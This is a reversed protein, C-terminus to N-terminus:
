GGVPMMLGNVHAARDSVLFEVADAIADPTALTGAARGGLLKEREEAPLMQFREHVRAGPETLIFGPVIVNVTIGAAAVDLALQRSFAEIAGKAACYALRAGVTGLAGPMGRTLTSSFNVVRGRGARKMHPLAARCCLFTATLNSDIVAGWLEDTHEEIERAGVHGSGGACNVLIDIRGAATLAADVIRTATEPRRLDGAVPVFRDGGAGLAGATSALKEGLVDAGIVTAGSKLLREAVARGLGQAAGTVIACSRHLDNM